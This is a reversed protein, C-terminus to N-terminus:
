RKKLSVKQVSVCFCTFTYFCCTFYKINFLFTTNMVVEENTFFLCFYIQFTCFFGQLGAHRLFALTMNKRFRKCANRHVIINNSGYFNDLMKLYRTSSDYKVTMFYDNHMPNARQLSYHM